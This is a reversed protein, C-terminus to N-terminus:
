LRFGDYCITYYIMDQNFQQEMERRTWEVLIVYGFNAYTNYM